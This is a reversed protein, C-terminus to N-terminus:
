RLHHASISGYFLSAVAVSNNAVHALISPALSRTRLFLGGLALGVLFKMPFTALDLHMASFLASTFLLGAVTHGSRQFARLVMGRFFLEESVPALVAVGLAVLARGGAGMLPWQAMLDRAWDPAKYHFVAQIFVEYALAVGLMAIGVLAGVPLEVWPRDGLLRPPSFNGRRWRMWRFFCAIMLSVPSFILTVALLKRLYVDHPLSLLRFHTLFYAIFLAGMALLWVACDWM